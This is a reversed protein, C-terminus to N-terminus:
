MSAGYGRMAPFFRSPNFTSGVQSSSGILYPGTAMTFHLHAGETCRDGWKAQERPGGGSIGIAQGGSVSDGISVNGSILHMYLSVYNSGNLNHLIQIVLGGCTSSKASIVRGNAVAYVTSGEPVGLDVAYHRKSGRSEGYISTQTFHKLPYTWGSVASVAHGGGSSGGSSSSSAGCNNINQSKTCGLSEYFKILKKKESIQDAISLGEEEEEKHQSQVILYKAQLDKKQNALDTQKKSLDAKKTNLEKILTNLEDLLGQNYDSMQTVVAYRYVFDTYNDAEFVYELLSDGQGKSLQLYLLMQNTEDKKKQIKEESEKIDKEAQEINKQSQKVQNEISSISSKVNNLEAQSLNSKKKSANYSKELSSMDNYLDGLTTADVSIFPILLLLLILSFVIKKM